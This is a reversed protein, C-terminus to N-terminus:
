QAGRRAQATESIRCRRDAQRAGVAERVQDAALAGPVAWSACIRDSQGREFRREDPNAITPPVGVAPPDASDATAASRPAADFFYVAAV